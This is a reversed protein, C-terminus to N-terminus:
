CLIPFLSMSIPFSGIKTLSSRRIIYGSGTCWAVGLSAKIPETIDAFLNLTQNLPDNKPVNYFVQPPCALACNEDLLLPAITGRLWDREPIMDADLAAIFPAAGPMSDVFRVGGNLNGAKYHGKILRHHYLLNPQKLDTLAKELDKSGGDDLVIVRFRNPPYDVICAAKVTNLIVDIDERCCTVFVDIRPVANGLARLRPRRKAKHAFLLWIRQILTPIAIFGELAIFVWSFHASSTVTFWIRVAFYTLTASIALITIIPTLLFLTRRWQIELFISPLEVVTPRDNPDM